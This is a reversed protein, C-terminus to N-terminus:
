EKEKKKEKGKKKKCSIKSKLGRNKDFGGIEKIDCINLFLLLLM